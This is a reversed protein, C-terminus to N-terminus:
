KQYRNMQRDLDELVSQLLRNDRDMKNWCDYILKLPLLLADEDGGIRKLLPSKTYDDLALDFGYKREIIDMLAGSGLEMDEEAPMENNQKKLRLDDQLFQILEEERELSLGFKQLFKQSASKYSTMLRKAAEISPGYVKISSMRDLFPLIENEIKVIFTRLIDGLEDETKFYEFGIMIGESYFGEVYAHLRISNKDWSSQSFDIRQHLNGEEKMYFWVTPFDKKLRTFGKSNLFPDVVKKLYRSVAGM